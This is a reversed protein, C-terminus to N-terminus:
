ADIKLWVKNKGKDFKLKIKGKLGKIKQLEKMAYSIIDAKRNESLYSDELLPDKNDKETKIERFVANTPRAIGLPDSLYKLLRFKRTDVGGIEIKQGQKYFKFYGKGKDVITNVSTTNPITKANLLSELVREEELSLQLEERGLENGDFNGYIHEIKSEKIIGEKELCLVLETLNIHELPLEKNIDIKISTPNQTDLKRQLLEMFIDRQKKYRYYENEFYRVKEFKDKPSLPKELKDEKYAELYSNLYKNLEPKVKLKVFVSQTLDKDFDSEILYEKGQLVVEIKKWIEPITKVEKLTNNLAPFDGQIAFAKAEEIKEAKILDSYRALFGDLMSRQKYDIPVSKIEILGTNHLEDLTRQVMYPTLFHGAEDASLDIEETGKELLDLIFDIENEHLLRM